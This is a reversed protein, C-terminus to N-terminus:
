CIMSFLSLQRCHLIAEIPLTGALLYVVSQPTSKHLKQINELTHKYHNELLKVEKSSLVLSALGSLLVSTGYTEQLKLASAPSGRHARAIGVSCISALARKHAVIRRNINPLNGQNSRLVGVHEAEQVFQVTKDSISVSNIIRAYEVESTHKKLYIPLLKTKSAVLTIRHQRCYNEIMKALLSLNRIDNSALIVDDAQGIASITCSSIDVGLESDHVLQLQENNYLKFYDGSNIGGQELGTQDSSPGMTIGDWQYITSRNGLRNNILNM